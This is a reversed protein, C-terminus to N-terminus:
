DHLVASPRRLGRERRGGRVRRAEGVPGAADHVRLGDGRDRYSAWAPVGDRARPAGGRDPEREVTGEALMESSIFDFPINREQFTWATNTLFTKWYHALGGENVRVVGEWGHWVAIGPRNQAGDLFASVQALRAAADVQGQWNKGMPYCNPWECEDGWNMAFWDVRHLAMLRTQFAQERRTTQGWNYCNSFAKGGHEAKGLSSALPYTYAAMRADYWYTDVFGASMNKTLAFYDFCGARLDYTSGEGTWTHHTGLGVGAGFVKRVERYFGGQLRFLADTLTVYYDHRVRATLGPEGEEDLM